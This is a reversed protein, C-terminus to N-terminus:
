GREAHIEIEAQDEQEQLWRTIREQKAAPLLRREIEPTALALSDAIVPRRGAVGVILFEDEAKQIPGYVEGEQLDDVARRLPLPLTGPDIWGTFVGPAVSRENAIRSFKAGDRLAELVETGAEHSPVAIVGIRVRTGISIENPHARYYDEIQEATVTADATLTDTLQRVLLDDRVTELLSQDDLGRADIWEGFAQLDGFRRRLESLAADLEDDSVSLGRRTAEQLLLRRQVLLQLATRELEEADDADSTSDNIALLDSLDITVRRLQAYTLVEGNVRAAVAPDNQQTSWSDTLVLVVFTLAILPALWTLLRRRRNFLRTVGGEPRSPSTRPPRSQLGLDQMPEAISTIPVPM